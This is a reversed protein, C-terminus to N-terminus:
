FLIVANRDREELYEQYDENLEYFQATAVDFLFECAYQTRRWTENKTLEEKSMFAYPLVSMYCYHTLAKSERCNLFEVPGADEVDEFVITEPWCKLLPEGGLMDMAMPLMEDLMLARKDVYEEEHNATVPLNKFYDSEMSPMFPNGCGMVAFALILIVLKNM